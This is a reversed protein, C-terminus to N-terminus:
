YKRLDVVPSGLVIQRARSWLATQAGTLDAASRALLKVMCGSTALTSGGGYIQPMNRLEANMAAVTKKWGDLEDAVIVFTALYNFGEAFGLRGPDLSAPRIRTRNLFVAKGRL